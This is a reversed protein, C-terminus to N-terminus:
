FNLFAALPILEQDIRKKFSNDIKNYQIIDVTFPLDSEEFKEKLLEYEYDSIDSKLCIDLDSFPRQTGKARSGFVYVQDYDKLITRLIDIDESSIGHKKM